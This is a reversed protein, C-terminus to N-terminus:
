HHDPQAHDTTCINKHIVPEPFGEMDCAFKSGNKSSYILDISIQM